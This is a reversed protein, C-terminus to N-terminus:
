ATFEIAAWSIAPLSCAIRGDGGLTAPLPRPTVANPEDATNQRHPDDDHLVIAKAIAVHADSADTDSPANANVGPLATLDIRLDHAHSVDRNVALLLGTRSTEDWTVVADVADVEGYAETRIVPADIRPAFVMGKAHRAAEAFPYFVTQRWAPGGDPEAMIPAIVNVLQARSASRVRDCHKLLTIMLSGEVVADAASYIDELLHPAVPWPEHHLGEGAAAKWEDEQRNWVDSYWVGWEDFSLAIDHDGKNAAKAEDACAAVTAIFQKMDEASALYDQMSSAGREYYYAHCSVFDLNDYAKTLVTREWQGFTPMHASSSGCAVLELGSEALKMAHAVKDVAAAYEDPTMHGVQWPGDMENGICWMKVDMPEPIGNAVRRDALATGPAGNVYELEELAAHLGRTGLNVALMIETGASKSWKHFDDIGVQNTETQHWALDRRVPRREKPGTGDEWNYNSVFNGGPYRVCTVGLERVLDLVDQRFGDANATPHDPEYIGGYVCRGVHEVFSGFMRPPVDAVASDSGITITITM